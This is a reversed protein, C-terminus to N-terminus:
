HKFYMHKENKTLWGSITYRKGESVKLVGHTYQLGSPFIVIKGVEPICVKNENTFYTHGGKYDDNLYIVFSYDRFFTNNPTRDPYINDAHPSMQMGTDWFVINCYDLYLYSESPYIKVATQTVKYKLIEFVKLINKDPIDCFSLTREYFFQNSQETRIKSDCYYNIFNQCNVSDLFNTIEYIM